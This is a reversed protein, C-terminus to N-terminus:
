IVVALLEVSSCGSCPAMVGTAIASVAQSLSLFAENLYMQSCQTLAQYQIVM